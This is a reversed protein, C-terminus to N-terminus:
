IVNLLSLGHYGLEALCLVGAVVSLLLVSWSFVVNLCGPVMVRQVLLATCIPLVVEGRIRTMWVVVYNKFDHFYNQSFSLSKGSNEEM